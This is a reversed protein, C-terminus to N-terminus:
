LTLGVTQIVTRATAALPRFLRLATAYDGREYAATADEFPGAAVPAALCLSLAVAFAALVFARFQGPRM